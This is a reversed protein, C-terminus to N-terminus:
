IELYEVSIIIRICTFSNIICLSYTYKELLIKVSKRIQEPFLFFGFHFFFLFHFSLFFYFSAITLLNNAMTILWVYYFLCEKRKKIVKCKLNFYFYNKVSLQLRVGFLSRGCPEESRPLPLPLHLSLGDATIQM